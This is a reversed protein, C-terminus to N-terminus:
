IRNSKVPSQDFVSVSVSFVSFVLEINFLILNTRSM